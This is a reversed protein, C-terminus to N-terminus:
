QVASNSVNPMLEYGTLLGPYEVDMTNLLLLFELCSLQYSFVQEALLLSM